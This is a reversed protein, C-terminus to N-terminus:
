IYIYYVYMCIYIYIYIYMYMYMYLICIVDRALFRNSGLESGILIGMCTTRGAKRGEIDKWGEKRGEKKCCGNEKRGGKRIAWVPRGERRGEKGKM